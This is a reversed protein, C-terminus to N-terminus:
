IHILSLRNGRGNHSQQWRVASAFSRAQAWTPLVARIRARLQQATIEEEAVIGEIVSFKDLLAQVQTAQSDKVKKKALRLVKAGHMDAQALVVDTLELLTVNLFSVVELTQQPNKLKRLRAPNRGRLRRAYGRRRELRLESLDYKHVGLGRLFAIKELVTAMTSPARRKPPTQLWELVSQYETHLRCLEKRWRRRTTDSIAAAVEEFMASEADELAARSWDRLRREGPVLIQNEYLWSRATTVLESMRSRTQADKRLHAMLVRARRETLPRIGLFEAAWRQHAFLTPRRSYLANLSTIDPVRVSLFERLHRLLRPPIAENGDLWRGTMKLFGIHLSAGLRHEDTRRSRIAKVESANYSFFHRLEFQTVDEAFGSAGLFHKQWGKVQRGGQGM